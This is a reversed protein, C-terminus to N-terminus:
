ALKLKKLNLYPKALGAVVVVLVGIAGVVASKTSMQSLGLWTWIPGASLSLLSVMLLALLALDLTAVKNAGSGSESEWHSYRNLLLLGPIALPVTLLFFWDYGIAAVIVGAPAILIVRPVAMVSTLLAYHTATYGKRCFNMMFGTLAATGMGMMFNDLCVVIVLWINRLEEAHSATRALLFFTIGIVSQVIGFVFLSRKLGLKAMLSGGALTGAITAILGAGKNVAGIMTNSYGLDVLFKSTLATAMLTSLKYVMVFIIIEMAGNRKLFDMLPVVMTDYVNTAKPRRSVKPEAACLVTALGMLNLAAMALYLYTWGFADAIGLAVGGSIVMAIRYGAIYSAAGAGLEKEDQIIESRYADIVIDQSASFFAVLFALLSVLPMNTAPNAYALGVTALFLGIQALAMWGRRLGLFPLRINDMFPAWIFKFSYPLGVLAMYGITTIDVKERALWVQLTSGVLALPLGASFGLLLSILMRKNTFVTLYRTM